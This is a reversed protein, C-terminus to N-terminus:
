DTVVKGDDKLKQLSRRVDDPSVTLDSACSNITLEGNHSRIYDFLRQELPVSPLGPIEEEGGATVAVPVRVETASARAEPLPLEPFREKMQQSAIASSEELVKRAESSSVQMDVGQDQIQGTELSMDSLMENVEGLEGAVEPIVGAIRGRTERVVGIVPALQAMVDGFEEITQLRLIVRELALESSMTLHAMKRIEACENAYLAAHANDKSLQAGICRQFMEKDRQQLRTSMHELKDKQSNLRWLAQAIREKLPISHM